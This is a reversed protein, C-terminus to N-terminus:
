LYIVQPLFDGSRLYRAEVETKNTIDNLTFNYYTQTTILLKNVLFETQFEIPDSAGGECLFNVAFIGIINSKILIQITIEGNVDTFDSTQNFTIFNEKNTYLSDQFLYSPYKLINLSIIAKYNSLKQQYKDYLRLRTEYYLDFKLENEVTIESYIVEITYINAM